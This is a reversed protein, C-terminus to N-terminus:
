SARPFAVTRVGSHCIDVGAGIGFRPSGTARCRLVAGGTRRVYYLTDHGFFEIHDVTGSSGETLALEEPRLLVDVEGHLPSQLKMPGLATYAIDGDANGSVTDAEGVFGALWRDAPREYLVAPPAQQIVEGDRMVAVEDGLVFAEDQDHTVFVCTVELERLLGAVEARVEVRLTTDLSSFPEDLLLVSPQPALARALAVRQQQGGSLSSPLRDALEAIGVMELLDRVRSSAPRPLVRTRPREARPLGFAVNAAVTLHPFLSWDQFVMGVGRKDAAVHVMQPSHGNRSAGNGAAGNKREAPGAMLKGGLVVRGSDLRQLGALVRLLTTKGCGSPGLIALTRGPKASISANRLVPAGGLAVSADEVLIGRGRRPTPIASHQPSTPAAPAIPAAASDLM